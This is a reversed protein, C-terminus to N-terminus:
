PCGQAGHLDVSDARLNLGVQEFSRVPTSWARRMDDTPVCYQADLSVDYVRVYGPALSNPDILNGDSGCLLVGRVTLIVLKCVIPNM